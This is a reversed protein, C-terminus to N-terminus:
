FEAYGSTTWITRLGVNNGIASACSRYRPYTPHGKKDENWDGDYVEIYAKEDSTHVIFYQYGTGIQLDQSEYVTVHFTHIGLEEDWSDISHCDKPLFKKLTSGDLRNGNEFNEAKIGIIKNNRFIVYLKMDDIPSTSINVGNAGDHFSVDRNDDFFADKTDGLGAYECIISKSTSHSTNGCGAFSLLVLLFIVMCIMLSFRRM